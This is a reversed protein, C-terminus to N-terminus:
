DEFHNRIIRHIIRQKRRDESRDGTTLEVTEGDATTVDHRAGNMRITIGLM